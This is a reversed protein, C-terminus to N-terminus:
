LGSQESSHTKSQRCACERSGADGEGVRSEEGDGSQEDDQEPGASCALHSSNEKELQQQLEENRGVMQAMQESLDTHLQKKELELAHLQEGNVGMAERLQSVEAKLGQMVGDLEQERKELEQASATCVLNFAEVLSQKEGQLAQKITLLNITEKLLLNNDDKM